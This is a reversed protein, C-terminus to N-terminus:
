AASVVAPFDDTSESGPPSQSGRMLKVVRGFIVANLWRPTFQTSSLVILKNIWGVESLIQL